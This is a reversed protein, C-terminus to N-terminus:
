VHELIELEYGDPDTLFAMRKSTGDVFKERWKSPWIDYGMSELKDCYEVIDDVRICIHALDEPVEVKYDPSYTLEFRHVSGPIEMHVIQNGQPSTVPGKVVEFGCTESYWKISQDINSVRVRTHDFKVPM